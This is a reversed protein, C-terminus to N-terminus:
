VGLHVGGGFRGSGPIEGPSAAQMDGSNAKAPKQHRTTAVQSCLRSSGIVRRGDPTLAVASVWDTHGQLTRLPEGSELDWVRLTKDYSGSAVRRGDPTVAVASVSNTHGELTRLTQEHLWGLALGITRLLIPRLLAM